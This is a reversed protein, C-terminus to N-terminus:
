SYSPPPAARGESAEAIAQQITLARGAQWAARLAPEPLQAQIAVLIRQHIPQEVPALIMKLTERLAESAGLLRAAREPQRQMAAVGALGILSTPASTGGGDAAATLSALLYRRADAFQEQMYAVLGRYQLLWIAPMAAQLGRQLELAEDLQAVAQNYDGTLALAMGLAGQAMAEVVPLSHARALALGEEYLVMARQIERGENVLVGGFNILQACLSQPSGIQRTLALGAELAATARAFEGQRCLLIGMASLSATRQRPLDLEECLQVCAEHLLLARPINGLAGEILAAHYLVGARGESRIGESHALIQEFWWRGETHHHSWYWFKGLKAAVHLLQALHGPQGLHWRLMTRLNDHEPTLQAMWQPSNWDNDALLAAYVEAHAQAAADAIGREHLREAAFERITELMSFRAEGQETSHVQVLSKDVLAALIDLLSSEAEEVLAPSHIRIALAEIAQLTWGGAFMSCREFWLQEATSLLRYSWDITARLTQQRAPLDRAGAILLALWRDLRALLERPALLKLRAAALELALPLGDLRVCIAALDAANESTLAFSPSAAQARALLLAVAPIGALAALSPLRALDPLPLPPVPMTHEGHLGLAARSTALVRLGPAAALLGAIAPGAAPLHECNDLVLLLCRERLYAHLVAPSHDTLGCAEAIAQPVLAPDRLAALAVFVAGDAFRPAAHWAGQLALRTKGSGGPGTLTLLRLAPDALLGAITALAGQRGILPTTPAPLAVRHSPQAAASAPPAAPVSLQAPRQRASHMTAHLPAEGARVAEYVARTEPLPGVGLERALAQTCREFQRLAATQDGTAAYLAILRRHMEEALPDTALARQAAAIALQYAGGATYGDALTALADLYRREWHQREEAVWDDFEASAPLTFGDLFPGAYRDVAAALPALEGRRAALAGAEAFAVTDVHVHSPDLLLTDGQAVVIGPAPLAQRLQNLLVTLNRRAAAEPIDPWFLFCLQERPLPRRTAALRYLLARLQRRPIALPAAHVSQQPPGLLTIHLRPELAYAPTAIRLSQIM